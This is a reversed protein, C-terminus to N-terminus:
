VLRVMDCWQRRTDVAVAVEVQQVWSPILKEISSRESHSVWPPLFLEDWALRTSPVVICSAQEQERGLTNEDDEDSESDSDVSNDDGSADSSSGNDDLRALNKWADAASVTCGAGEAADSGFDFGLDDDCVALAGPAAVEAVEKPPATFM